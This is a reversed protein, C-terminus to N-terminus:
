LWFMRLCVKLQTTCLALQPLAPLPSTWVKDHISDVTTSDMQVNRQINYYKM